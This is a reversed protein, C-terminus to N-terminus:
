ADHSLRGNITDLTNVLITNVNNGEVIIIGNTSAMDRLENNIRPVCIIIAIDANIDILKVLVQMFRDRKVTHDDDAICYEIVLSNHEDYAYLAVIHSIGSKGKVTYRKKVNFGKSTLTKHLSDFLPNMDDEVTIRGKLVTYYYIENVEAEYVDVYHSETCYMRMVPDNFRNSCSSCLYWFGITHISRQRVPTKCNPCVYRGDDDRFTDREGIYGCSIHEMLMLKKVDNSDCKPCSLRAHMLINGHIPCVLVREYVHREMLGEKVALELVDMGIGSNELELYHVRGREIVPTIRDVSNVIKLLSEPIM